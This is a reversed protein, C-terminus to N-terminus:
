PLSTNKHTKVENLDSNQRIRGDPVIDERFNAATVPQGIQAEVLNKDMRDVLRSANADAIPFGFTM